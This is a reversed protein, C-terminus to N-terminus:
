VVFKRARLTRVKGDEDSAIEFRIREFQLALELIGIRAAPDNMEWAHGTMIQLARDFGAKYGRGFIVPKLSFKLDKTDLVHGRFRWESDSLIKLADGQATRIEWLETVIRDAVMFFALNPAEDRTLAKTYRETACQVDRLAMRYGRFFPPMSAM